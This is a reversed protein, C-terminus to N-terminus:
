RPFLSVQSGCLPYVLDCTFVRAGAIDWGLPGTLHALLDPYAPVPSSRAWPPGAFATSVSAELPLRDHERSPDPPVVLGRMATHYAALAFACGPWVAPHVVINLLLRKCPHELVDGFTLTRGDRVPASLPAAGPLTETLYVDAAADRRVPGTAIEYFTFVGDHEVSISLDRPRGFARLLTATEDPRSRSHSSGLRVRATPRLRRIGTFGALVAIDVLGPRHPPPSPYVLWTVSALDISVGKILAMGRFVAQRAGEQHRRRADPLTDAILADLGTRTGFTRQLEQDFARLEREAARVAAPAAGHRLAARVFHRLPVSGPLASLAALPDTARLATMLRSALTKDVKLLRAVEIPGLGRLPSSDLVARLATTLQDSLRVLTAAEAPAAPPDPPM